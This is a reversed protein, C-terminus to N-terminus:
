SAGGAREWELWREFNPECGAVMGCEALVKRPTWKERREGTMTDTYSVVGARVRVDSVCLISQDLHSLSICLERKM